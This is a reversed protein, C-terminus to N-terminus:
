FYQWIEPGTALDVANTIKQTGILSNIKRRWIRDIGLSLIINLLDYTKAIKDFLRYSENKNEPTVIENWFQGKKHIIIGIDYVRSCTM